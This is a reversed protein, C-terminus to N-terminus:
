KTVKDAMAWAQSFLGPQLSAEQEWDHGDHTHLKMKGTNIACELLQAACQAVLMYRAAKAMQEQAKQREVAIIEPWNADNM